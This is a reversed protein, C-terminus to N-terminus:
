DFHKEEIKGCCLDRFVMYQLNDCLESRRSRRERWYAIREFRVHTHGLNIHQLLCRMFLVFAIASFEVVVVVIIIRFNRLLM